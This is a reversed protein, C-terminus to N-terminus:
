WTIFHILLLFFFYKQESSTMLCCAHVHNSTGLYSKVCFSQFDAPMKKLYASSILKLCFLFRNIKQHRWYAIFMLTITPEYIARKVLVKFNMDVAVNQISAILTWVFLFKGIKIVDNRLLCWGLQLSMYPQKWLFKSNWTLLLKHFLFLCDINLFLSIDRNQLHWYAILMRTIIPEYIDHTTRCFGLFVLWCFNILSVSAILM